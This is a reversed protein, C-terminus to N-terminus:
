EILVGADEVGGRAQDAGRAPLDRDLHVLDVAAVQGPGQRVRLPAASPDADQEVGGDRHRHRDGGHQGGAAERDARVGDVVLAALDVVDLDQQGVAGGQDAAHVPSGAAGSVMIVAQDDAG